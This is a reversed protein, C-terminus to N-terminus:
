AKTTGMLATCLKSPVPCDFLWPTANSSFWAQHCPLTRCFGHTSSNSKCHRLRILSFAPGRYALFSTSSIDRYRVLVWDAVHWEALMSPSTAGILHICFSACRFVFQRLISLIHGYKQHKMTQTGQVTAACHMCCCDCFKAMICVNLITDCPINSQFPRLNSLNHGYKM